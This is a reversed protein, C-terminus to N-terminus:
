INEYASFFLLKERESSPDNVDCNASLADDNNNLCKFFFLM